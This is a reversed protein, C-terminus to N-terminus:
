RWAGRQEALWADVDVGRWLDKGVGRLSRIDCGAPRRGEKVGLSRVFVAFLESLSVDHRSAYEEAVARTNEDLRITLDVAM